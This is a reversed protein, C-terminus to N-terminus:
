AAAAHQGARKARAPVIERSELWQAVSDKRFYVRTGIKTRPPGVRDAHWRALTRETTGLEAALQAMTLYSDLLAM